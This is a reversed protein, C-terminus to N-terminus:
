KYLLVERVRLTTTTDQKKLHSSLYEVSPKVDKNIQHSLTTKYQATSKPLFVIFFLQCCYIYINKRQIDPKTLKM